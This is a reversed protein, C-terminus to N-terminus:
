YTTVNNGVTGILSSLQEYSPFLLKSNIEEMSNCENIMELLKLTELTIKPTHCKLYINNLSLLSKINSNLWIYIPSIYLSAWIRKYFTLKPSHFTKFKIFDNSNLVDRINQLVKKPGELFIMHRETDFVHFGTIIDLEPNNLQDKEIRFSEIDFNVIFDIDNKNNNLKEFITNSDDNDNFTGYINNISEKKDDNLTKSFKLGKKNVFPKSKDM